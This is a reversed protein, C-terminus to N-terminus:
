CLFIPLLFHIIFLITSCFYFAADIIESISGRHTVTFFEDDEYPSCQCKLDFILM